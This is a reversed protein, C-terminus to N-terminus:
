SVPRTEGAPGHCGARGWARSLEPGGGAERVLPARAQGLAQGGDSTVM